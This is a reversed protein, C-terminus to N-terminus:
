IAGDRPGAEVSSRNVDKPHQFRLAVAAGASYAISNLMPTTVILLGLCEDSCNWYSSYSYWISQLLTCGSCWHRNGSKIDGLVLLTLWSAGVLWVWRASRNRMARNLLLGVLFASGWLLPSYPFDFWPNKSKALLPSAIILLFGGLATSGVMAVFVHVVFALEKRMM